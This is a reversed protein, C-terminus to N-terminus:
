AEQVKTSEQRNVSRIFLKRRHTAKYWCECATEISHLQSKPTKYNIGAKSMDQKNLVSRVEDKEVTADNVLRIDDHVDFSFLPGTFPFKIDSFFLNRFM